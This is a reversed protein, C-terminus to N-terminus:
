TRQPWNDATVFFRIGEHYHSRTPELGCIIIPQTNTSFYLSLRELLQNKTKVRTKFELTKGYAPSIWESRELVIWDDYNQIQQELNSINIWQSHDHSPSLGAPLPEPKTNLPYFLRGKLAIQPIVHEVGLLALASKGAESSSLQIQHSLLHDTKIDLRDIANPGLWYNFNSSFVGQNVTLSNNLYFKIALELHYHNGNTTDTYILDFEGYTKKDKSVQLNHAALELDADHIIFFQWLAEFYIGIRTSRLNSLYQLLPTPDSDLLWLWRLRAETLNLHCSQLATLPSQKDFDEILNEGFCSWALDRVCQNEFLPITVM